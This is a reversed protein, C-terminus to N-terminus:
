QLCVSLVQLPPLGNFLFDQFAPVLAGLLREAVHERSEAKILGVCEDAIGARKADLDM